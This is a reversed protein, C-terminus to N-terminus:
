NYEMKNQFLYVMAFWLLIGHYVMSVMTIWPTKFCPFCSLIAHHKSVPLGYYVMCKGYVIYLFCPRGCNVMYHRPIGHNVMYYWTIHRFVITYWTIGHYIKMRSIVQSLSTTYLSRLVPGLVSRQPVGFPIHKSCSATGPTNINQNIDSFYSELRLPSPGYIGFHRHLRQLLISHDSTDFAASLDQLTLATVKSNDM